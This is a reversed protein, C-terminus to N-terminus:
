ENQAIGTVLAKMVAEDNGQEAGEITAVINGILVTWDPDTNKKPKKRTRYATHRTVSTTTLIIRKDTSTFLSNSLVESEYDVVIQYLVECDSETDFTEIFATVFNTLSSKAAVTLSSSSIANVLCTNKNDLLYRIEVESVPYYTSSKIALFDNNAAAIGEVTNIIQSLAGGLCESSYYTDFLETHLCGIEDYPNSENKPSVNAITNTVVSRAEQEYFEKDSNCSVFGFLSVIFLGLNILCTHLNKM